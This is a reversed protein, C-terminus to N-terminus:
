GKADAWGQRNGSGFVLFVVAGFAYVGGALFFVNQWESRVSREVTLAGVVLPAAISAVNSLTSTLGMLTGAHVPALDLQNAIITCYAIPVCSMYVFIVAVTLIQNCGTYGVLILFLGSLAFGVVVFGKRVVNTSLRGPFRLWDAALGVIPTFIASGTFAIASLAGNWTMDLGMVDHMYLPLCTTMTLFGWNNAFGAIALAWAPASTFIERLPTPPREVLDDASITKEWYQRETTSILPHTFPSNYCLVFWAASWVCSVMGFVYFVSPWGGAFGYDCLVGAVLIAVVDGIEMGTEIGNVVISHYKPASWRAVMAQIAPRMVGGGLGSLVQLAIVLGIQVRAAAPTLLSVM